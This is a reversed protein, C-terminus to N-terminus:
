KGKIREYFAKRLNPKIILFIGLSINMLKQFDAPLFFAAAVIVAGGVVTEPDTLIGILYNKISKLTNTIFLKM